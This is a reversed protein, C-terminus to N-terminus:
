GGAKLVDRNLLNPPTKGTLGAICNEAALTAMRERTAFSASAIHPAVVVNELKLLDPHVRPEFEFVDLGAGGIRGNKLADVLAQEDVVPGRATNVLIATPKMLALEAAGILHHTTPMLPVHLSVFDAERLIQEKDAFELGLDREVELPQRVEDFYLLRMDFGRARRALGRGIRGMGFIGLTAHHVDQGLFLDVRWETFRGERMFRDAPVVHRATAILLAFAFDATTDTLVEPTNTAMVGHRTTAALDINDFGVAVNSVIKLGPVAELFEENIKDQLLCVLGQRGAMRARLEEPALPRDSDNVDLDFHQALMEVGKRPIKRSVLVKPKNTMPARFRGDYCRSRVHRLLLTATKWRAPKNKVGSAM